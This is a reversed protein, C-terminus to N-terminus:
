WTGPGEVRVQHGPVTVTSGDLGPGRRSERGGDRCSGTRVVTKGDSVALSINYRFCGVPRSTDHSM